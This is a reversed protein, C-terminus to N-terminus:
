QIAAVESQFELIETWQQSLSEPAFLPLFHMRDRPPLSYIPSNAVEAPVFAAAGPIMSARAAFVSVSAAVPKRILFNILESVLELRENALGTPVALTELVLLTGEEPIVYHIDAHPDDKGILDRSHSVLMSWKDLVSDDPHTMEDRLDAGFILGFQLLRTAITLDDESLELMPQDAGLEAGGSDERFGGPHLDLRLGDDGELVLELSKAYEARLTQLKEATIEGSASRLKGILEDTKEVLQERHPKTLNSTLIAAISLTVEADNLFHISDWLQRVGTFMFCDEWAAPPSTVNALNYYIGFSTRFYPLHYNIDLGPPIPSFGVLFDEQIVDLREINLDALPFFRESKSAALLWYSPVLLLETDGIQEETLQGAVLDSETLHRLSVDVGYHDRFLDLAAARFRSGEEGAEHPGDLLGSRVLVKIPAVSDAEARKSTFEPGLHNLIEKQRGRLDLRSDTHVHSEVPQRNFCGNSAGLVLLLAGLRALSGRRIQRRPKPQPVAEECFSSPRTTMRSVM